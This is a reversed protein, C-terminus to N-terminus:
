KNRLKRRRGRRRSGVASQLDKKTWIFVTELAIKKKHTLITGFINKREPFVFLLFSNAYFCSRSRVSFFVWLIKSQKWVDARRINCLEVENM